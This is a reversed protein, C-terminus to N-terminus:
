MDKVAAILAWIFRVFGMLAWGIGLGIVHDPGGYKLVVGLLIILLGLGVNNGIDNANIMKSVIKYDTDLDM